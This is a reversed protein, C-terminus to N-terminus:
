NKIYELQQNVQKPFVAFEQYQTKGLTSHGLFHYINPDRFKLVLYKRELKELTLHQGSVKHRVEKFFKCTRFLKRRKKSYLTEHIVIINYANLYFAKIEERSRGKLSIKGIDEYLQRIGTPEIRMRKYDVKGNNVYTQLLRDAQKFFEELTSCTGTKICCLLLCLLIIKKM